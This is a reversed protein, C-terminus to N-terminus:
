KNRKEELDNLEITKEQNEAKVNQNNDPIIFVFSGFVFM